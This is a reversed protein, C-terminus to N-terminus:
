DQKWFRQMERFTFSASWSILLFGTIAETGPLFRIAGMPVQDGFGLTTYVTASFYVLDLLGGAGTVASGLEGQQALAHYAFAFIWIEAVHLAVLALMLLLIRRRRVRVHMWGLLRTLQTFVEYHLLVCLLVVAGTVAVVALGHPGFPDVTM